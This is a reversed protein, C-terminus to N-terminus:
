LRPGQSYEGKGDKRSHDFGIMYPERMNLTSWDRASNLFFIINLSSINKHVWGSTHLSQVCAILIKALSLKENLDPYVEYKKGHRLLKNPRIPTTDERPFAYVIGFARERPDHFAGLCDLTRSEVPKVNYKLVTVLEQLRRFMAQIAQQFAESDMDHQRQWYPMPEVIVLREEGHKYGYSYLWSDPQAAPDSQTNTRRILSSEIRCHSNPESGHKEVLLTMYKMAALTRIDHLQELEINLAAM